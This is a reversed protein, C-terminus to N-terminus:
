LNNLVLPASLTGGNGHYILPTEPHMEKLARLIREAYPKAFEEFQAPSLHHAWSEFLQVVQLMSASLLCVLQWKWGGKGAPAAAVRTASEHRAQLHCSVQAGSKIQYSVYPILQETLHNLLAHLTEPSHFMM